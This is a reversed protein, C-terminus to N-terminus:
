RIPDELAEAEDEMVHLDRGCARISWTGKDGLVLCDGIMQVM